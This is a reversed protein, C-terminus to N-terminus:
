ALQLLEVVMSSMDNTQKLMATGSQMLMQNTAVISTETAFDVDMIRGAAAQTNASVNSLNDYVHDLRNALAGLGSRLASVADIADGLSGIAWAANAFYTTTSNM